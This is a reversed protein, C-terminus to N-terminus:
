VEKEMRDGVEDELAIRGYNGTSPMCLPRAVNDASRKRMRVGRRDGGARRTSLPLAQSQLVSRMM